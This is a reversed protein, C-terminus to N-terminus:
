QEVEAQIDETRRKLATAKQDRDRMLKQRADDSLTQSGKKLQDEVQLVENQLKDIEAKAPAFKTQLDGAAKQGDKTSIIANQIHLIGVKTPVAAQANALM